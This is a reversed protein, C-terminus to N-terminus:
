GVLAYRGLYRQPHRAIANYTEHSIVKLPVLSRGNDWCLLRYRYTVPIRVVSRMGQLRKGSLQWYDVGEDLATMVGRSKLVVSRPLKKLDIPDDAFTAQWQQRQRTKALRQAQQQAKQARDAACRHCYQGFGRHGCAFRKRYRRRRSM